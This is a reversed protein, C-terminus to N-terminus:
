SGGKILGKQVLAARMENVLAVLGNAQAETFGYGATIATATAVAAQASGSRQVTPDAGHFGVLDTPSQGLKYGGSTAPTETVNPTNTEKM